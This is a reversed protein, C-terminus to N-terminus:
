VVKVMTNERVRDSETSGSEKSSKEMLGFTSVWETSRIKITNVRMGGVMKGFIFGKEM